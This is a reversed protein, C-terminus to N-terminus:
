RAGGLQNGREQVGQAPRALAGAVAALQMHDLAGLGPQGGAPEVLGGGHAAGLAIHGLGQGLQQFFRVEAAFPFPLARRFHGQRHHRIRGRRDGQEVAVAGAQDGHQDGLVRLRVLAEVGPDIRGEDAVAEGAPHVPLIGQAFGLETEGVPFM